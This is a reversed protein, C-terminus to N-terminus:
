DHKELSRKYDEVAKKQAYKVYEEFLQKMNSRALFAGFLDDHPCEQCTVGAKKYPCQM